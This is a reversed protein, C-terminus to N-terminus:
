QEIVDRLVWARRMARLGHSIYLRREQAEYFADRRLKGQGGFWSDVADDNWTQERWCNVRV